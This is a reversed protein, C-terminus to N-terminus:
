GLALVVTQSVTTYSNAILEPNGTLQPKFSGCSQHTIGLVDRDTFHVDPLSNFFEALIHFQTSKM